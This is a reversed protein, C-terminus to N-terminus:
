SFQVQQKGSREPSIWHSGSGSIRLVKRPSLLCRVMAYFQVVNMTYFAFYLLPIYCTLKLKNFLTTHEDPWLNWLLYLSITVYASIFLSPSMIKYSAYLVFGLALPELILMLESLFAMPIRYFTLMRSFSNNRNGLLARYKLLSQLSGLKWRYRQRLLAKISQVGETMALVDSGYVIRNERNGESIVKLSLGIDETIVDDDYYRVQKLISRRYTSAVGGVIYESNTVSYFKKSRYGVMYEFKQLMGLFSSAEMIRVNAAVGVVVPNEFYKTANAIAKKHLVSDADLTMILNGDAGNRLAHNLAGAKGVNKQKYMLKIDRNAHQKIYANVLKKTSDTSADDIVIIQLKRHTNTRVSDLCRIIGAEENHAPILVSVLPRLGRKKPKNSTSQRFKKIDYYNAGVIYFGFHLVDVMSIFMFLYFLVYLYM